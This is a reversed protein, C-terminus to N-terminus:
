ECNSEILMLHPCKKTACSKRPCGTHGLYQIEQQAFKCKSKNLKVNNQRLRELIQRLRNDHEEKTRGSVLIDDIYSVVGEVGDVIQSMRKHFVESASHIGFPLRMFKYRGFPTNFCCLDSSQKDLPIQWFGNNADLISFYQAKDIKSMLEELTPIHHHERKIAQNLEKPDLCLRLKGNPKEVIVLSNVWDTPYDVKEIIKEHVLRELEDKLKNHLAFPVRRPPHVTPKADEELQIHHETNMCGTGEFVDQYEQMIDDTTVQYVRKILNLAVAARLGLINQGHKVVYFDIKM